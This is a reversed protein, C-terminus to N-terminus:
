ERNAEAQDKEHLAKLDSLSVRPNACQDVVWETLKESIQRILMVGMGAIFGWVFMEDLQNHM